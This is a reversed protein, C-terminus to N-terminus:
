QGDEEEDDDENSDDDADSRELDDETDSEGGTQQMYIYMCMYIYIYIYIYTHIYICIYLVINHTRVYVLVRAVSTKFCCDCRYCRMQGLLCSAQLSAQAEGFRISRRRKGRIQSCV